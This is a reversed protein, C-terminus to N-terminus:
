GKGLTQRAYNCCDFLSSGLHAMPEANDFNTDPVPLEVSQCLGEIDLLVLEPSHGGVFGAKRFSSLQRSFTEPTINLQRALVNHSSPFTLWASRQQVYLDMLYAVLRQASNGITLLDIRNLSQAIRVAMGELMAISFDPSARCLALLRARPLRYVSSALGARASLPYRCPEVFMATEALLDGAEMSRFIKHEGSYSPRYLELSGSQVLYFYAAADGMRFLHQGRELRILSVGELLSALGEKGVKSFVPSRALMHILSLAKM